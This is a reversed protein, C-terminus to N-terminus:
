EDKVEDIDPPDPVPLVHKIKGTEWREPIEGRRDPGGADIDLDDALRQELNYMMRKQYNDGGQSCKTTYYKRAQEYTNWVQLFNEYKDSLLNLLSNFFREKFRNAILAAELEERKEEMAMAREKTEELKDILEELDESKLRLESIKSRITEIREDEVTGDQLATEMLLDSREEKLENLKEQVQEYREKKSNIRDQLESEDIFRVNGDEDTETPFEDKLMEYSDELANEEIEEKVDKWDDMYDETIKERALERLVKSISTDNEECYKELMEKLGKDLQFSSTEM